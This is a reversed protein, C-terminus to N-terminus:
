MAMPNKIADISKAAAFIRQRRLGMISAPFRRAPM